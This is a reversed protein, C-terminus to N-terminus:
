DDAASADDIFTAFLQYRRDHCHIRDIAMSEFSLKSIFIYEGMAPRDTHGPRDRYGRSPM